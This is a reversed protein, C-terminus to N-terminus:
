CRIGNSFSVLLASLSSEYVEQSDFFTPCWSLRRHNMRTWNTHLVDDTNAFNSWLLQTQSLRPCGCRLTIVLLYLSQWASCGSQGVSRAGLLCYASAVVGMRFVYGVKVRGQVWRSFRKGKLLLAM